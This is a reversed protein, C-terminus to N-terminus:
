HTAFKVTATALVDSLTDAMAIKRSVVDRLFDEHEPQGMLADAGEEYAAAIERVEEILVYVEELISSPIYGHAVCQEVRRVLKVGKETNKEQRHSAALLHRMVDQETAGIM